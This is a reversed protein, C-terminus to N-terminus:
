YDHKGPSLSDFMTFSDLRTTLLIVSKNAVISDMNIPFLNSFINRPKIPKCYVTEVIDVAFNNRQLCRRSNIAGYMFSKLEVMCQKMKTCHFLKTIISVNQVLFIPFPWHIFAFNEYPNPKEIWHNNDTCNQKLNTKFGFNINPCQSDHSYSKFQDKATFKDKEFFIIGTIGNNSLKTRNIKLYNLSEYDYINILLILDLESTTINKFSNINKIIFPKGINGEKKSTCGVSHTFNLRKICFSIRNEYDDSSFKQYIMQDIDVFPIRFFTWVYNVNIVILFGIHILQIWNM